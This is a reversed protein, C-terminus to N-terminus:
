CARFIFLPIHKKRLLKMEPYFRSFLLNPTQPRCSHHVAPVGRDSCLLPNACPPFSAEPLQQTPSRFMCLKSVPQVSLRLPWFGQGLCARGRRKDQGIGGGSEKEEQLLCPCSRPDKALAVYWAPGVPCLCAGSLSPSGWSTRGPYEEQAPPFHPLHTQQTTMCGQDGQRAAQRWLWGGGEGAELLRAWVRTGALVWSRWPQSLSPAQKRQKGM